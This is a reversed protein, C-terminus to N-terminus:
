GQYEAIAAKHDEKLKGVEHTLKVKQETNSQVEEQPTTLNYTMLENMLAWTEMFQAFEGEQNVKFGFSDLKAQHEPM